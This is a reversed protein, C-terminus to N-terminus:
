SFSGHIVTEVLELKWPALFLLEYHYSHSRNTKANLVLYLLKFTSPLAYVHYPHISYYM